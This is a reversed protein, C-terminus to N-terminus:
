RGLDSEETYLITRTLQPKLEGEPLLRVPQGDIEAYGITM